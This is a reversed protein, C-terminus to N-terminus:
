QHTSSRGYIALRPMFYGTPEDPIGPEFAFRLIRARTREAPGLRNGNRALFRWVAGTGAKGNDANVIRLHELGMGQEQHTTLDLVAVDIPGEVEHATPNVVRVSIELVGREFDIRPESVDVRLALSLDARGLAGSTADQVQATAVLTDAVAFTTHRLELTGRAGAGIWASHFVGDRDAQLGQTEGGNAFRVPVVAAVMFSPRPHRPDTWTDFLPVATLIWNLAANTCTAPDSLRQNASFTQGGDVSIAAYLRWCRHAPDDRRDYWALAVVGDRNVAVAINAPPGRMASDSVVTTTWSIGVDDTRALQVVYRGLREDYEPWASYIRGRWRSWSADIASRVAQASLAARYDRVNHILPGRRVARWRRGGVDTVLFDLRSTTITDTGSLGIHNSVVRETAYTIVADGDGTVLMDGPIGAVPASPDPGGEDRRIHDAYSWSAGGDTSRSVVMGNRQGVVYIAGDFMGKGDAGSTDFAIWPRDRYPLAVLRSFTRGGDNSRDVVTKSVGDVRTGVVVYAHLGGRDFYVTGDGGSGIAEDRLESHTWHSGGDFTVYLASGSNSWKGSRNLRRTVRQETSIAVMHRPDLPDIALHSEYHASGSRPASIQQEGLKRVAATSQAAANTSQALVLLTVTLNRGTVTVRQPGRM